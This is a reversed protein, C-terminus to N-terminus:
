LRVARYPSSQLRAFAYEEFQEITIDYNPPTLYPNLRFPYEDPVESKGLTSAALGGLSSGNSNNSRGAEAAVAVEGKKTIRKM